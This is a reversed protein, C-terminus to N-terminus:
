FLPKGVLEFIMFVVFFLTPLGFFAVAALFKLNEKMEEGYALAPAVSIKADSVLRAQCALRMGSKEDLHLKEKWTMPTLCDKPEVKIRDTGCLGFGRCNLLKNPGGYINVKNKHAVERLVEGEECTVTVNAEQFEVQPM